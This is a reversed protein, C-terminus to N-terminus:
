IIDWNNAGDSQVRYTEYQTKITIVTKGDITQGNLPVLFIKNVSSDIKKVNFITGYASANPLTFTLNGSTTNGKVTYDNLTLNYNSTKTVNPNSVIGSGNIRAIYNDSVFNVDALKVITASNKRIYIDGGILCMLGDRVLYINAELLSPFTPLSFNLIQSSNENSGVINSIIPFNNVSM